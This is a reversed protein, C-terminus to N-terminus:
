PEDRLVPNREIINGAMFAQQPSENVLRWGFLKDKQPFVFVDRGPIREYGRKGGSIPPVLNMARLGLNLFRGTQSTLARVRTLRIAEQVIGALIADTWATLGDNPPVALLMVHPAECQPSDYNIALGTTQTSSPRFDNWEDFVFGVPVRLWKTLQM